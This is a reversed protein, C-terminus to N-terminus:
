SPSPATLHPSTISSVVKIGKEQDAVDVRTTQSGKSGAREEKRPSVKGESAGSSELLYWVRREWGKCTRNM